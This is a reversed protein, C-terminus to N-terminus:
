IQESRGGRLVAVALSTTMPVAAVLGISGALSRVIETAVVEQSAVVSLGQQAQTFLLLLPLAAGAYALFLTNVTSSIHDRGIRVAARYLEKSGLGPQANHLEFVASVQTVTVDDLVGLAGIVFGALVIGRVDIQGGLAQLYFASDDTLGTFRAVGAFAWSVVVTVLLSAFTGLLAVSTATTVGHALYLAIFAILASAVIAAAIPSHGHLISPLLFVALILMSIALGALAGVGRWRGLAVVAAAFLVTLVVLPTRRQHDYFSFVVAGDPLVTRSVYLDDGVKLRLGSGGDGVPISFGPEETPDELAQDELELTVFQCRQPDDASSFECLDDRVVSVTAEIPTDVLLASAEDGIMSEGRPWLVAAGIITALMAVGVAVWIWRVARASIEPRVEHHHAHAHLHRGREIPQDM